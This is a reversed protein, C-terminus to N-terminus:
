DSVSVGKGKNRIYQVWMVSWRNWSREILFSECKWIENGRLDGTKTEEKESIERLLPHLSPQFLFIFVPSLNALYGSVLGWIFALTARHRSNTLVNVVDVKYPSLIHQVAVLYSCKIHGFNYFFFHRKKGRLPRKNSVNECDSASAADKERKPKGFGWFGAWKDSRWQALM